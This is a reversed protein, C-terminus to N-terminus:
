ETFRLPTPSGDPKRQVDIVKRYFREPTVVRFTHEGTAVTGSGPIACIVKGDLYVKSADPGYCNVTVRQNEARMEFRELHTPGSISVTRSEAFYGEKEVRISHQGEDLDLEAPTSGYARGDVYLSAGSPKSFVRVRSPAAEPQATAWPDVENASNRDPAEEVPEPEPEPTVIRNRAAERPAVPRTGESARQLTPAASPANRVEAVREDQLEAEEGPEEQQEPAEPEPEPEPEEVVPAVETAPVQTPAQTERVPQEAAAVEVSGTPSDEESEGGRGLAFALVVVVGVMVGAVVKKAGAGGPRPAPITPETFDQGFGGEATGFSEPFDLDDDGGDWFEEEALSEGAALQSPPESFGAPMQESSEPVDTEVTHVAAEPSAAEPITAATLPPKPEEVPADPASSAGWDVGLPDPADLGSINEPDPADLGSLDLGASSEAGAAAKEEVVADLPTGDNFCFDVRDDYIEGCMSCRKM